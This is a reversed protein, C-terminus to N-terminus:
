RLLSGRTAVTLARPTTVMRAGPAAVISTVTFPTVPLVGITTCFGNARCDAATTFGFVVIVAVAVNALM